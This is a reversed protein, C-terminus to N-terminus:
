EFQSITVKIPLAARDVRLPPSRILVFSTKVNSNSITATTSRTYLIETVLFYGSGCLVRFRCNEVFRSFKTSRKGNCRSATRRIGIICGFNGQTLHPLKPQKKIRKPSHARLKKPSHEVGKKIPSHAGSGCPSEQAFFTPTLCLKVGCLAFGRTELSGASLPFVGEGERSGRKTSGDTYRLLFDTIKYTDKKSFSKPSCIWLPYKIVKRDQLLTCRHCTVTKTKLFVSRQTSDSM